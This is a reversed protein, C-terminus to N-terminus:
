NIGRPAMGPLKEKFMAKPLIHTTRVSLNCYLQSSDSITNTNAPRFDNWDPLIIESRNSYKEEWDCTFM